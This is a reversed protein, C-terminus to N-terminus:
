NDRHQDNGVALPMTRVHTTKKGRFVNSGFCKLRGAYRYQVDGSARQWRCSVEANEEQVLCGSRSTQVRM